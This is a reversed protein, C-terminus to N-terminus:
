YSGDPPDDELDSLLYYWLVGSVIGQTATVILANSIEVGGDPLLQNDVGGQPIGSFGVAQGGDFITAMSDGVPTAVLKVQYTTGATAAGVTRATVTLPGGSVVAQVNFPGYDGVAGLNVSQDVKTLNVLIKVNDVDAPGPTGTLEFWWQINYTGNPLTLTAITVGAGPAAQSTDAVSGQTAAGDNLSWGCLM